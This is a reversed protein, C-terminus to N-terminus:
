DLNIHRHTDEQEEDTELSRIKKIYEEDFSIKGKLQKLAQIKKYNIADILASEVAKSRNSTGYVAEAEKLISESINLTTRM